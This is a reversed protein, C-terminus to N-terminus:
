TEGLAQALAVVEDDTMDSLLEAPSEQILAGESDFPSGPVLNEDYSSEAIGAESAGSQASPAIRLISDDFMASYVAVGGGAGPARDVRLFYVGALLALAVVAAAAFVPRLSPRRRIPTVVEGGAAREVVSRSFREWFEAPMREAAAATRLAAAVDRTEELRRACDACGGVHEDVLARDAPAIDGDVLRAILKKVNACNM